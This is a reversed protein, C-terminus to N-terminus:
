WINTEKHTNFKICSINNKILSWNYYVLYVAIATFITFVVMMLLNYVRCSNYKYSNENEFLTIEALKVEEITGNCEKILKDAM